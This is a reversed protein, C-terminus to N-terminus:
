DSDGMEMESNEPTECKRKKVSNLRQRPRRLQPEQKPISPNPFEKLFDLGAKCEPKPCCSVDLLFIAKPHKACDRKVRGQFTEGCKQCLVLQKARHCICPPVEPEKEKHPKRLVSREQQHQNHSKEKQETSSSSSHSINNNIPALGQEVAKPTLRYQYRNM